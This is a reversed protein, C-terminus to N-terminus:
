GDTGKQRALEEEAAAGLEEIAGSEALKECFAMNVFTGTGEVNEMEGDTVLHEQEGRAHKECLTSIYVEGDTAQTCRVVKSEGGCVYCKPNIKRYDVRLAIVTEPVDSM